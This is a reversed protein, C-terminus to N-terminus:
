NASNRAHLARYLGLYRAAVAQISYCQKVRETAMRSYHQAVASKEALDSMAKELADLDEVP